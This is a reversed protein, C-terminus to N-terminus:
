ETYHKNIFLDINENCLLPINENIKGDEWEWWKIKLLKKRQEENFRYKIFRGPNGGVISYPEVDKIVYSNTAIIAGDGITVGCKITVNNAIWVDNGIVVNKAPALWTKHPFNNFIDPHRCGFPFTTVWDSRHNGGLYITTGTGFSCFAGIHITTDEGWQNIVLHELGYTYKGTNEWLVKNWDTM